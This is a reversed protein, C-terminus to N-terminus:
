PHALVTLVITESDLPPVVVPTNACNGGGAPLNGCDFISGQEARPSEIRIVSSGVAILPLERLAVLLATAAKVASSPAKPPLNISIGTGSCNEFALPNVQWHAETSLIYQLLMAVGMTDNDISFPNMSVQCVRVEIRQKAFPKLREVLKQRNKGYLLARRSGQAILEQQLKLNEGTLRATEEENASARGNAESAKGNVIAVLSGTANRMETEVRGAKLHQWFEGAVGGAVLGAGLLGLFLLLASPKDPPRIVGRRFELMAHRYEIFIVGLEVAVGIVVVVTWFNLWCDISAWASELSKLKNSLTLEDM